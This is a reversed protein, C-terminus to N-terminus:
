VDVGARRLQARTNKVSRPDSPTASATVIGGGPAKIQVHGGRTNRVQCGAAEAQKLLRDM